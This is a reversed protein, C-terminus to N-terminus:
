RRALYRQYAAPMTGARIAKAAAEFDARQQYLLTKAASEYFAAVAEREGADLLEHALLQAPGAGLSNSDDNVGEVKVMPRGAIVAKQLHEVATAVKGRRMAVTGLAIHADAVVRSNLDTQTARGALDLLASARAEFQTLLSAVAATDERQYALMLDSHPGWMLGHAYRLKLEESLAGFAADTVEHAPVGLLRVMRNYSGEEALRELVFAGPGTPNIAVAAEAYRHADDRQPHSLMRSATTALLRDDKASALVQRAHKQFEAAGEDTSMLWTGYLMGLRHSWGLRRVPPTTAPLEASMTKWRLLLAESVFPEDWSFFLAANAMVEASVGPRDMHAMWLARAQAYGGPDLRRSVGWYSAQPSEPAKEILRLMHPRKAALTKDWGFLKQGHRQYFSILRRRVAMDDPNDAAAKELAPLDSATTSVGAQYDGLQAERAAIDKALDPDEALPPVSTGCAIGITVLAACVLGLGGRTWVSMSPAPGRLVLDIRDELRRASVIGIGQWAVRQGSRHLRRAMEVLLAAYVRPNAVQRVVVDDCALEAVRALHRELWWALPHFWFVARNIRAVAAILPDRRTVHAREHLVVMRRVDAGWRSWSEPVLVRPALVGAVVPTMVRASTYTLADPASGALRVSQRALRRVAWWGTVERILFLGAVIGWGFLLWGRWSWSADTAALTVGAATVNAVAPQAIGRVEPAPSPSSVTGNGAGGRNVPGMSDVVSASPAQARSSSATADPISVPLAITPLWGALLPLVLMATLVGTWAAHRVAATKVRWAALMMAVLTAIVVARLSAEMLTDLVLAATM